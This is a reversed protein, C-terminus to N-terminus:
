RLRSLVIDLKKGASCFQVLTMDRLLDPVTVWSQDKVSLTREETASRTTLTRATDPFRRTIHIMEYVFSIRRLSDLQNTAFRANASRNTAKVTIGVERSVKIVPLKRKPKANLSNMPKAFKRNQMQLIILRWSSDRSWHNAIALGNLYKSKMVGRFAM